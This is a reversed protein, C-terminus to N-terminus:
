GFRKLSETYGMKPARILNDALKEGEPDLYLRGTPETNDRSVNLVHINFIFAPEDLATFWHVNDRHDSVTSCGGAGFERDITPRILYHDAEDAVRDYHRGRFNGRLILFATSMNNHGHPVVSRGRKLAFIQKGFVLNTPVGAVQPFKFRLSNAGSDVIKLGATLQEFDIAALLDPLDVQAFLEEIKAQWQLDKLRGDKLDLGLQNVDTLWRATLPKISGALADCQLLSDVLSFTALSGLARATFQRRSIPIM